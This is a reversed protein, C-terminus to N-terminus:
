EHVLHILKKQYLDNLLPIVDSECQDRSVEYENTLSSLLDDVKVPKELLDWIHSAIEDLGYYASNEISLMVVEHDMRSFLMNTDRQLVTSHTINSKDSM